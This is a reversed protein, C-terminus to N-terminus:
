PCLYPDFPFPFPFPYLYSLLLLCVLGPLPELQFLQQFHFGLSELLPEVVLPLQQAPFLGELFPCLPCPPCPPCPPGFLAKQLCHLESSFFLSLSCLGMILNLNLGLGFIFFSLFSLLLLYFRLIVLVFVPLFPNPMTLGLSKGPSNFGNTWKSFCLPIGKTSGKDSFDFRQQLVIGCM